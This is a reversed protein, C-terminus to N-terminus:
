KTIKLTFHHVSKINNKMVQNDEVCDISKDEKLMPPPPEAELEVLQM